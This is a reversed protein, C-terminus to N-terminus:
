PIPVDDDFKYTLPIVPFPDGGSFPGDAPVHFATGNTVTGPSVMVTLGKM